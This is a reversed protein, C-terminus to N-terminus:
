AGPAYGVEALSALAVNVERESASVARRAREYATLDAGRAAAALSSYATSAQRLTAVLDAHSAAAISPVTGVRAVSAAAQRFTTSTEAANAALSDPTEGQAALRSRDVRRQVDLRHIAAAVVSAYVPDPPLWSTSAAPVVLTSAVEDCMRMADGMGPSAYCVAVLSGGATLPVAYVTLPSSTGGLRIGAYRYAEAGNLEVVAPSPLAVIRGAFAPPLVGTGTNAARGMVIGASGGGSAPALALEDTLQLGPLAPATTTVRWTPPYTVGLDATSGHMTLAPPSPARGALVGALAAACLLVGILLFTRTQSKVRM